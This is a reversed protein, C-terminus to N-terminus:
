DQRIKKNLIKLSMQHMIRKQPSHFLVFGTIVVNLSLKNANLWQNVRKLESNLAAELNNVDSDQLFLNTDDVFLHFEM